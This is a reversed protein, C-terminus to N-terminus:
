YLTSIEGRGYKARVDELCVCDKPLWKYRQVPEENNLVRMGGRALALMEREGPVIVVPALFGVHSTIWDTFMESRALGGTLIIRDITGCRVVSLEGIAKSVCYAMYWYLEKAPSIGQEAMREVELMDQIGIFASLGGEGRMKQLVELKSFEGSFCMEILATSPVRGARQPSMPGEDDAVTDVM